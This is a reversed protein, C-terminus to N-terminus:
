IYEILFKFGNEVYYKRDKQNLLSGLTVTFDRKKFSQAAKIIKSRVNAPIDAKVAKKLLFEIDFCDRILARDLLADIKNKMMQKLTLSNLLVQKTSHASFAIVEEYEFPKPQKRIEIKLRMPYNKSRFEYLLTFHKAASDTIEYKKSLCAKIKKHFKDIAMKKKFYFDLDVSYRNLGHCLRLMTGGGFLLPELLKASNLVELAEIEFREHLELAEM